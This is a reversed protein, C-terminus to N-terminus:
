PDRHQESRALLRDILEVTALYWWFIWDLFIPDYDASSRVPRWEVGYEGCAALGCTVSRVASPPWGAAWWGGVPGCRCPPGFVRCVDVPCSMWAARLHM